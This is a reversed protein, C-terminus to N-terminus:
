RSRPSELGQVQNGPWGVEGGTLIELSLLVSTSGQAETESKVGSGLSRSTAGISLRLSAVYGATWSTEPWM